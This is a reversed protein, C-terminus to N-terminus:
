HLRRKSLPPDNHPSDFQAKREASEALLRYCKALQKFEAVYDAAEPKQAYARLREALARYADARTMQPKWKKGSQFGDSGFRPELRARRMPVRCFDAESFALPPAIIENTYTASLAANQRHSAPALCRHSYVRCEQLFVCTSGGKSGGYPDDTKRGALPQRCAVPFRTRSREIVISL